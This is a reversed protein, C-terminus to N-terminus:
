RTSFSYIKGSVHDVRFGAERLEDPSAWGPYIVALKGRLSRWVQAETMSTSVHGAPVVFLADGSKVAKEIRAFNPAHTVVVELSGSLFSHASATGIDAVFAGESKREEIQPHELALLSTCFGEFTLGTWHVDRFLVPQVGGDPCYEVHRCLHAMDEVPLSGDWRFRNFIVQKVWRHVAGEGGLGACISESSHSFHHALKDGKKAIVAESCVPCCLGCALGRPAASVHVLTGEANLALQGSTHGQNRFARRSSSALSACTDAL